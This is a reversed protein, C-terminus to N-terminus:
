GAGGFCLVCTLMQEAAGRGPGGLSNLAKMTDGKGQIMFMGTRHRHRPAVPLSNWVYKMNWYNDFKLFFHSSM